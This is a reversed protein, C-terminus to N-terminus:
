DSRSIRSDRNLEVSAQPIVPEVPNEAGLQELAALSNEGDADIIYINELTPIENPFDKVQEYIEHTSVM